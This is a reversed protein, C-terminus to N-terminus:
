REVVRGPCINQFLGAAACHDRWGFEESPRKNRSRESGPRLSISGSVGLTVMEDLFQVDAFVPTAVQPHDKVYLTLITYERYQYAPIHKKMDM